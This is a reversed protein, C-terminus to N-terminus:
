VAEGREFKELEADFRAGAARLDADQACPLARGNIHQYLAPLNDIPLAFAESGYNFQLVEVGQARMKLLMESAREISLLMVAVDESSVGFQQQQMTRWQQAAAHDTFALAHAQGKIQVCVPWPNDGRVHFLWSSLRYTAGFLADLAPRAGNSERANIALQAFASQGAGNPEPNAEVLQTGDAGCFRAGAPYEKGCVGCQKM